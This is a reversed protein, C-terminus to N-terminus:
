SKSEEEEAPARPRQVDYIARAMANAGDNFGRIYSKRVREDAETVLRTKETEFEATVRDFESRMSLREAELARAIAADREDKLDRYRM